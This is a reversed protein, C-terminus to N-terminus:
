LVQDVFWQADFPKLDSYSQGMGVYIIPKNIAHTISLAAGGKADADMKTLIVADVGAMEDFKKAQEVADNGTLADGVFVKLNPKNVRVIKGLEDMLNINTQMRGASDALVVDIGRAKAHAVADFIVAASDAGKAHSIFKIGLKQSHIELQEIAGARFTDGAAFVSSIRNDKLTQAFKAMTTTKGTGNVGLFLIVYPKESSKIESIIDPTGGSTLTELLIKKLAQNIVANIRGVDVEEGLIKKKIEDIFHDSAEVGVDSQMLSLHLENLVAELDGKTLTVKRSFLTKVKTKVSLKPDYRKEEVSVEPILKEEVALKSLESEALEPEGKFVPPALEAAEPKPTTPEPELKITEPESSGPKQSEVTDEAKTAEEPKPPLTGTESLPIRISEEAKEVAREEARGIFTSFRKKLADFM